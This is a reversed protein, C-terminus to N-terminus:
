RLWQRQGKGRAKLTNKTGKMSEIRNDDSSFSFSPQDVLQGHCEEEDDDDGDWQDSGGPHKQKNITKKIGISGEM